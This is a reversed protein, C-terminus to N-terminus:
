SIKSKKVKKREVTMNVHALLCSLTHGFFVKDKRSSTRARSKHRWILLTPPVLPPEKDYSKGERAKDHELAPLPTSPVYVGGARGDVCLIRKIEEGEVFCIIM